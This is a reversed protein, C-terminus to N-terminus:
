VDKGFENTRKEYKRVVRRRIHRRVNARRMASQNKLAAGPGDKKRRCLFKEVKPLEDLLRRAYVVSASSASRFGQPADSAM